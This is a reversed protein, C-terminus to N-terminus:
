FVQVLGKRELSGELLVHELHHRFIQLKPKDCCLLLALSLINGANFSIWFFTPLANNVEQQVDIVLDLAYILFQLVGVGLEQLKGVIHLGFLQLWLWWDQYVCTLVLRSWALNRKGWLAELKNQLVLRWLNVVYKEVVDPPRTLRYILLFATDWFDDLYELEDKIQGQSLRWRPVSQLWLTGIPYPLGYYLQM